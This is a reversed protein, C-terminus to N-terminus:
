FLRVLVSEGATLGAKNLPVQILGDANVLTYILNSKGFVPTAQPGDPSDTVRAPIYDERGSESAINQTLMAWISGRRPPVALGQLRYIAPVGFMDFQIMASVPNGPLGLVPKGDAVGVITPKGPRTAVGHLLVGPEGLQEIVQVTMDRVSVSSGASMVLMDAEALAALAAKHLAAFNDRIIGGLLPVGGAQITQSAVTYSNIDRIQGPTPIQDPAIVEDGTALIAVRPQRVVATETLGLALLGGIDQPRLQHGAPLIEAQQRVDEGVQLVNQGPAV